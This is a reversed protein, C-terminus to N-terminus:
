TQGGAGPLGTDDECALEVPFVAKRAIEVLLPIIASTGAGLRNAFAVHRFAIPCEHLPRGDLLM